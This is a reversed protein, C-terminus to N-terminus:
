PSGRPITRCLDVALGRNLGLGGDDSNKFAEEFCQLTKAGDVSGGCLEVALGVNMGSDVLGVMRYCKVPETAGLLENLKAEFEKLKAKTEGDLETEPKAEPKTLSNEKSEPKAGPEAAFAHVALTFVLAAALIKTRM